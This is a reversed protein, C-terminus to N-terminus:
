PLLATARFTAPTTVGGVSATITELGPIAGLTYSMSAQGNADTTSTPAALTGTGAIRTWAVTAGSVPNGFSDTVRVVFPSGLVRLVIGRLDNGSVAVISAANGVLATLSFTVSKTATGTPISAIATAPGVVSGLSLPASAQGQADTTTSQPITGNTASWNVPVGAVPFGDADTVKVVLPALLAQGVQAIQNNGSVIAIAAAVAALATATFTTPTTVGAVSATITELGPIAGLTYLVSAQGNADTTSTPAALTGTGAIRTWAVTVGPVPNGFSDTVRVVFPSALVRRVLGQLDSASVAVISAVDGVLATAPISVSFGAATATFSQAGLLGGLTLTTSAQGQADTTVSTSGVRGGTPAAFNVTVGAVGGGDAATV